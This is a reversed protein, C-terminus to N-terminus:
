ERFKITVDAKHLRAYLNGSEFQWDSPMKQRLNLEKGSDLRQKEQESIRVIKLHNRIFAAVDDISAGANLMEHCRDCIVKRPIVHERHERGSVSEGVIVLEDPILPPLLLRTDSSGKEEWMHRMVFAVRHFARQALEENSFRPMM